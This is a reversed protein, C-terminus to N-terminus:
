QEFHAHKEGKERFAVSVYAGYQAVALRKGDVEIRIDASTTFEIM